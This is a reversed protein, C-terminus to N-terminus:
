LIVSPDESLTGIFRRLKSLMPAQTQLARLVQPPPVGEAIGRGAAQLVCESIAVKGGNPGDYRM